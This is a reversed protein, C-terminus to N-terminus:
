VSPAPVCTGGLCLEPVSAAAKLPVDFALWGSTSGAPRLSSDALVKDGALGLAQLGAPALVYKVGNLELRISSSSLMLPRAANNTAAVNMIVYVGKAKVPIYANEIQRANYSRLIRWSLSSSTPGSRSAAWAAAVVGDLLLIAAGLLALKKAM